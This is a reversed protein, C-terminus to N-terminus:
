TGSAAAGTRLLYFSVVAVTALLTLAVWIWPAGVGKGKTHTIVGEGIVALFPPLGQALKHMPEPLLRKSVYGLVLISAGVALALQIHHSKFFDVIKSM